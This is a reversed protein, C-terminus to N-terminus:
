RSTNGVACPVYLSVKFFSLIFPLIFAGDGATEQHNALQAALFPLSVGAGASNLFGSQNKLCFYNM